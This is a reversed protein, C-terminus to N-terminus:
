ANWARAFLRFTKLVPATPRDTQLRDHTLHVCIDIFFYGM